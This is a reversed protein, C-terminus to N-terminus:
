KNTRKSFYACEDACLLAFIFVVTDFLISASQFHSMCDFNYRFWLWVHSCCSLFFFLYHNKKREDAPSARTSEEKEEFDEKEQVYLSDNEEKEDCHVNCIRNLSCSIEISDSAIPILCNLKAATRSCWKAGSAARTISCLRDHDTAMSRHDSRM